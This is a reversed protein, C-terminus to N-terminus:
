FAAAYMSKATKGFTQLCEIKLGFEIAKAVVQVADLVAIFGHVARAADELPPYIVVIIDLPHSIVELWYALVQLGSAWDNVAEQVSLAEWADAQLGEVLTRYDRFSHFMNLEWEDRDAGPDGERAYRKAEQLSQDLACQVEDVFLDKLVLSYLGHRVLIEVIKNTNLQFNLQHNKMTPVAELALDRLIGVAFDRLDANFGRERLKQDLQDFLERVGEIIEPREHNYLCEGASRAWNEMAQDLNDFDWDVAVQMLLERVLTKLGCELPQDLDIEDFVEDLIYDTLPYGALKIGAILGIGKMATIMANFDPYSKTQLVGPDNPDEPDDVFELKALADVITMVLVAAEETGPMQGKVWERIEDVAQSGAYKALEKLGWELTKQLKTFEGRTIVAYIAELMRAALEEYWRRQTSRELNQIEKIVARIDKIIQVFDETARQCEYQAYETLNAYGGLAVALRKIAIMENYNLGDLLIGRDPDGPAYEYLWAHVGSVFKRYPDGSVRWDDLDQLLGLLKYVEYEHDGTHVRADLVADQGTMRLPIESKRRLTRDSYSRGFYEGFKLLYNGPVMDAIVIRGNEPRNAYHWRTQRDDKLHFVDLYADDIPTGEEDTVNVTLSCAPVELPLAFDTQLWQGPKDPDEVEVVGRLDWGGPDVTLDVPDRWGFTTVWAVLYESDSVPLAPVQLAAWLSDAEFPWGIDVAKRDGGWSLAALGSPEVGRDADGVDGARPNIDDRTYDDLAAHKEPNRSYFIELGFDQAFLEAATRTAASGHGSYWFNGYVTLPPIDTIVVAIKRADERFGWWNTFLIADYAASPEWWEGGGDMGDIAERLRDIELPGLFRRFPYDAFAAPNDSIASGAIRFDVHNEVLLDVLRNMQERAGPLFSDMSGTADLIFVVDLKEATRTKEFLGAEKWADAMQAPLDIQAEGQVSGDAKWVLQETLRFKEIPLGAAWEGDLDEVSLLCFLHDYNFRPGLYGAERVHIRPREYPTTPLLDGLDVPNEDPAEFTSEHFTIGDRSVTLSHSGTEIGASFRGDAGTSVEVPDSAIVVTARPVPDHNSDLVRGTVTTQLVGGDTGADSGADGSGGGGGCGAPLLLALVAIQALKKM